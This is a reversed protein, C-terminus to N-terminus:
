TKRHRNLMKYQTVDTNKEPTRNIQQKSPVHCSTQLDNWKLNLGLINMKARTAMTSYHQCGDLKCANYFQYFM